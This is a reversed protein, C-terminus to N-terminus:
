EIRYWDRLFLYGQNWALRTKKILSHDIRVYYLRENTNLERKLDLPLEDSKSYAINVSAIYVDGWLHITPAVLNIHREVSILIVIDSVKGEQKIIVQKVLLGNISPKDPTFIDETM